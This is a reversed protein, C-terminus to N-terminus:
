ESRGQNNRKVLERWGEVVRCGRETAVRRMPPVLVGVEVVRRWAKWEAGSAGAMLARTSLDSGEARRLLLATPRVGCVMYPGGM